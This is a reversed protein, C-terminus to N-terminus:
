RRSSDDVAVATGNGMHAELTSEAEYTFNQFTDSITRESRMASEDVSNLPM